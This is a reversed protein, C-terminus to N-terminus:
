DGLEIFVGQCPLVGDVGFVEGPDVGGELVPDFPRCGGEVHLIPHSVPLTVDVPNRIAADDDLALVPDRVLDAANGGVDGFTLQHLLLQAFCLAEGLGGQLGNGRTQRDKIFRARDDTGVM